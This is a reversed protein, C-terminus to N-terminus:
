VFFFLGVFIFVRVGFIVFRGDCGEWVFIGRWECGLIRFEVRLM